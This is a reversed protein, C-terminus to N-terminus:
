WKGDEQETKYTKKGDYYKCKRVVQKNTQDKM